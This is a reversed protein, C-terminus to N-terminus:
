KNLEIVKRARDYCKKREASSVLGHIHAIWVIFDLVSIKMDIHLNKFEVGDLTITPRSMNLIFLFYIQEVTM